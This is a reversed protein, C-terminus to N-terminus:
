ITGLLIHATPVLGARQLTKRSAINTTACRAAPIAGVAYCERKLEQVLYAGLGRQRYAEDVEMWIDGYPRNYHFLLGGKAVVRGELQLLWEGGGQRREIAALLEQRETLTSLVAGHSPLATTAGDAFVIRESETVRGYAHLMVTLLADSTQVEFHRAGCSEMFMEFLAFARTAYEARLYFEYITPANKWPGDIAISGFGADVGDVALLFSRTWGDRRHLADHVIQGRAESRYRTRLPLLQEATAPTCHLTM